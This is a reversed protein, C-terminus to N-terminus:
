EITSLQIRIRTTYCSHIDILLTDHPLWGYELRSSVAHNAIFTHSLIFHIVMIVYYPLIVQIDLLTNYMRMTLPAGESMTPIDLWQSKYLIKEVPSVVCATGAGFFEKVQRGFCPFFILWPKWLWVIILFWIHLQWFPM